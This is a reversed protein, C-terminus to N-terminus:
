DNLHQGCADFVKEVEITDMCEYFACNELLCKKDVPCSVNPSFTKTKADRNYPGWRVASQAKIPSYIGILPTGLANAMHTTGTSPGIFLDACKLVHAFHVLGEKSGDFFYVLEDLGPYKSLESKLKEIYPGDSPTFSVMIKYKKNQALKQILKGYSSQPWNLTHGSMGPHIIILKKGKLNLDRKIELVLDNDVNLQPAIMKAQDESWSIGFPKLLELNLEGEHRSEKTRSQRVGKNLLLFTMLKSKLGGRLKVGKFFAKRMPALSGGMHLFIDPSFKSFINELEKNQSKKPAKPNFIFVEDVGECLSILEGSRPSVIFGVITEPKWLKLMRAVVTSLLTDGIADTRNILIKM